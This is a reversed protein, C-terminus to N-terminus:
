EIRYRNIEEIAERGGLGIGLGYHRDSVAAEPYFKTLDYEPYHKLMHEAIEGRTTIWVRPKQKVYDLLEELPGTRHGSCLYPHTGYSLMHPYGREGHRYLTDFYDRFMEIVQRPTYGEPGYCDYDCVRYSNMGVIKKDGIPIIFPVDTNRMGCVYKFGREAIIRFSEATLHGGASSFGAATVGLEKNFINITKDISEEQERVTQAWLYEHDWGQLVLEHGEDRLKRSLDPYNAVLLGDTFCSTRIDHRKWVDLAAQMGGTEGFAHAYIWRMGRQYKATDPVRERARQHGTPTGM